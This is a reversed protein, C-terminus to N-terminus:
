TGALTQRLTDRLWQTMNPHPCFGRGDSVYDLGDLVEKYPGFGSVRFPVVIVSGGRSNADAVFQRIRKEADARKEPWDERLTECRIDRFRGLESIRKARLRMLALWRENEADNGPGHGVILVSEAEPHHSLARVRDVLIQDVLPSEAVGQRSVVFRATAQIRQPPEMHHHDHGAPAPTGADEARLPAAMAMSAHDHHMNHADAVQAQGGAARPADIPTPPTERLGLIYETADRFSDGSIFMRVVAIRRVGRAELKGVADEITSPTAMGFAIETPYQARLPQVADEIQQNWEPDGGHAMVIVGTRPQGCGVILGLAAVAIAFRPM